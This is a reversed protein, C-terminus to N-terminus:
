GQKVSSSVLGQGSERPKHPLALGAEGGAERQVSVAGREQLKPHAPHPVPCWAPTLRETLLHSPFPTEAQLNSETPEVWPVLM